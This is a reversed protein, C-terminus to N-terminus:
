YCTFLCFYVVFLYIFLYYILLYNFLYIVLYIFLYVFLFLCVCVNECCILNLVEFGDARLFLAVLSVHSSDMAQLSLGNATVDFNADTVLDLFIAFCCRFKVYDFYLACACVFFQACLLPNQLYLFGKISEMIKKLIAGQDLRAEFRNEFFLRFCFIKPILFFFHKGSFPHISIIM